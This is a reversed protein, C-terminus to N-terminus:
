DHANHTGLATAKTTTTTSIATMPRKPQQLRSSVFVTEMSDWEPWRAGHRVLDSGKHSRQQRQLSQNTTLIRQHRRGMEHSTKKAESVREAQNIDSTELQLCFKCPTRRPAQRDNKSTEWTVQETQPGVVHNWKSGVVRRDQSECVTTSGRSWNTMKNTTHYRVPSPSIATSTM